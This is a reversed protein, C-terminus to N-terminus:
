TNDEKIYPIYVGIVEGEGGGDRAVGKIYNLSMANRVYKKSSEKSVLINDTLDIKYNSLANGSLVGDVYNRLLLLIDEQSNLMISIKYDNDYFLVPSYSIFEKDELYDFIFAIFSNYSNKPYLTNFFLIFRKFGVEDTVLFMQFIESAGTSRIYPSYDFLDVYDYWTVNLGSISYESIYFKISRIMGNRFDEYIFTFMDENLSIPKLNYVDFPMSISNFDAASTSDTINEEKFYLIKNSISYSSNNSSGLNYFVFYEDNKHYVNSLTVRSSSNYVIEKDNICEINYGEMTNGSLNFKAVIINYRVSSSSIYNSFCITLYNDKYEFHSIKLDYLSASQVAQVNVGYTSFEKISITSDNVNFKIISFIYVYYRDSGTGLKDLKINKIFLFTDDDIKVIDIVRGGLNFNSLEKSYVGDDDNIVALVSPSTAIFCAIRGDSLRFLFRNVQDIGDISFSGKLEQYFEVMAGVDISDGAAVEYYGIDANIKPVISRVVNTKGRM